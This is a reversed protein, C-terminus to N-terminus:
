SLLYAKSHGNEKSYSDFQSCLTLYMYLEECEIPKSFLHPSGLYKKLDEFATQHEEIWSFNKINKLIKFFSLGKDPSKFIFQSLAIM